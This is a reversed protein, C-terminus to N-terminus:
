ILYRCMVVSELAELRASTFASEGAPATLGIVVPDELGFVDRAMDRALAALHDGPVFADVSPDKTVGGLGILGAVVLVIAATLLLAPRALILSIIKKKGNLTEYTM